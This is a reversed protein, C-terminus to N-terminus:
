NIYGIELRADTVTSWYKLLLEMLIFNSVEGPNVKDELKRMMDVQMTSLELMLQSLQAMNVDEEQRTLHCYKTTCQSYVVAPLWVVVLQLVAM